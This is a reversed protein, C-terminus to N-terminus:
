RLIGKWEDKNKIIDVIATLSIGFYVRFLNFLKKLNICNKHKELDVLMNFIQLEINDNGNFEKTDYRFIKKGDEYIVFSRRM